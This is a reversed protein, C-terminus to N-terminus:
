VAFGCFTVAFTVRYLPLTVDWKSMQYSIFFVLTDHIGGDFWTKIGPTETKRQRRMYNPAVTWGSSRFVFLCVM